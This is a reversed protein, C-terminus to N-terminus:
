MFNFFGSNVAVAGGTSKFAVTIVDGLFSGIATGTTAGTAGATAKGGSGIYLGGGNNTTIGSDFHETLSVLNSNTLSGMWAGTADRSAGGFFCILSENTSSTVQDWSWASTATSIDRTAPTDFPDGTTPCGRICLSSGIQHNTVCTITPNTTSSSTARVWYVNLGRLSAGIRALKVFGATNQGFTLDADTRNRVAIVLVDDAQHTPLTCARTQGGASSFEAGVAEITPYAM